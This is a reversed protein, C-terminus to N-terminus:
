CSADSSGCSISRGCWIPIAVFSSFAFPFQGPEPFAINPVAILGLAIAAVWLAIRNFPRGRELAGVLM